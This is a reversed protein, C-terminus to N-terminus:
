AGRDVCGCKPGGRREGTGRVGARWTDRRNRGESGSDPAKRKSYLILVKDEGNDRNGDFSLGVAMEKANGVEGCLGVFYKTLRNQQSRAGRAFAVRL